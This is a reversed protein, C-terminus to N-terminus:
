SIVIFIINCFTKRGIQMIVHLLPFEQPLFIICCFNEIEVYYCAFPFFVQSLFIFFFTEREVNHSVKLIFINHSLLDREVWHCAFPFEQSSFIIHCFTEREM